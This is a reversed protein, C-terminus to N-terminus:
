LSLSLLTLSCHIFTIISSSIIVLIILSSEVVLSVLLIVLSCTGHQTFVSSTWLPCFANILLFYLEEADSLSKFLYINKRGIVPVEEARTPICSKFSKQGFPTSNIYGSSHCNTWKSFSAIIVSASSKLVCLYIQVKFYVKFFFTWVSLLQHCPLIGTSHTTITM